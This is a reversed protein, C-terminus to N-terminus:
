GGPLALGPQWFEEVQVVRAVLWCERPGNSISAMQRRYESIEVVCQGRSSPFCHDTTIIPKGRGWLPSTTSPWQSHWRVWAEGRQLGEALSGPMGVQMHEPISGHLVNPSGHVMWVPAIRLGILLKRKLYLYYCTNSLYWIIGVM